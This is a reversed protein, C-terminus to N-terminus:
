YWNNSQFFGWAGCPTGYRNEIYNLGWKIQTAPNTQWDDGYAAMKDGPLAQPIGYAGSSSNSARENWGSERTWLSDLCSMQDLSFGWELLLACGTARNGSYDSCSEPVPGAPEGAPADGASEESAPEEAPPPEPAPSVEAEVARGARQEATEAEAQETERSRRDARLNADAYRRETESLAARAQTDTVAGAETRQRDGDQGVAAGGLV